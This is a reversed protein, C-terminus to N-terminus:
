GCECLESGVMDSLWAEIDSRCVSMSGGGRSGSALGRLFLEKESASLLNVELVKLRRRVVLLKGEEVERAASCVWDRSGVGAPMGLLEENKLVSLLKADDVDVEVQLCILCLSLM